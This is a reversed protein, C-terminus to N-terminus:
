VVGKTISTVKGATRNITHTITRGGGVETISSLIGATRNFTYSVVITAGDKLEVKTVVSGTRIINVTRTDTGIFAALIETVENNAVGVVDEFQEQVANGWTSAITQGPAITQKTYKGM